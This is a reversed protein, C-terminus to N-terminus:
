ALVARHIVQVTLTYRPWGSVPDPLNGPAAFEDIGYVQGTGPWALLHAEVLRALDSAAVERSAWAEVTLNTRQLVVATRGGGGTAMLRVFPDPRTTPVRTSVPVDLRDSLYAVALGELDPAVLVESM